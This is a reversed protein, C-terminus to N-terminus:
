QMDDRPRADDLTTIDTFKQEKKDIGGHSLPGILEGATAAAVVQKSSDDYNIGFVIRITSQSYRGLISHVITILYSM